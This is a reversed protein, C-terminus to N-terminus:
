YKTEIKVTVPLDKILCNMGSIMSHELFNVGLESDREPVFIEIEDHITHSISWDPQLNKYLLILALKLGAAASGQIPYNLRCNLSPFSSWSM